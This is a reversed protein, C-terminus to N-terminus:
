EETSSDKFKVHVGVEEKTASQILFTVQKEASSMSAEKLLDYNTVSEEANLTLEKISNMVATYGNENTGSWSYKMYFDLQESKKDDLRLTSEPLPLIVEYEKHRNGNNDNEKINIEAKSLDVTFTIDGYFALLTKYKDSIELLDHMVVSASLVELKGMTQVKNGVNVVTDQASEGDEIGEEAGEKLGQTIGEYSGALRGAAKGATMGVGGGIEEARFYWFIAYALICLSIATFAALLIEASIKKVIEGFSIRVKETKNDAVDQKNNTDTTITAM